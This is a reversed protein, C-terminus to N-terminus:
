RAFEPGHLSGSLAVRTPMFLNKGKVGTAKQITKMLKNSFEEDIEDVKDLEDKMADLITQTYEGKLIELAEEDEVQIENDFMFSVKEVIESIHHIGERVIDVLIKLWERNEEAFKKIM